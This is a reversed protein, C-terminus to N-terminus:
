PEFYYFPLFVLGPEVWGTVTGTDVKIWRHTQVYGSLSDEETPNVTFAYEYSFEVTKMSKDDVKKYVGFDSDYDNKSHLRLEGKKDM